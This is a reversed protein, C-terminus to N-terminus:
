RNVMKIRQHKERPQMWIGLFSSQKLNKVPILLLGNHWELVWFEEQAKFSSKIAMSLQQTLDQDQICKKPKCLPCFASINSCEPISHPRVNRRIRRGDKENPLQSNSANVDLSRAVIQGIIDNCITGSGNLQLLPQHARVDSSENKTKKDLAAGSPKKPDFSGKSNLVHVLIKIQKEYLKSRRKQPIYASVWENLGSTFSFKRLYTIMYIM